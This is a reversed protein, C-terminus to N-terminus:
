PVYYEIVLRPRNAVTANGSYFRIFDALFDNDDDIQFRLRFQTIGARNIYPYYPDTMAKLRTSVYWGGAKPTNAIVGVGPQSAIAQFDTPQLAPNNSFAGKRADIIIKGHTTFPNTGVVSQRKIKLAVRTIVANDPLSSTNFHLIARYQRRNATDGLRFTAAGANTGGGQNSTESTELVWGDQAGAPTFQARTTALIVIAKNAGLSGAAGPGPLTLVADNNATDQIAGGNLTLSDSSVYDLDSSQDGAQVTYIFTLTDSGNGSTYNALRDIVGTELVLQPTGTVNVTESFTVTINIISGATYTGNAATSSVNMVTPATVDQGQYEYAGIDCHTGQPRTVGRQDTPVCISDDGTNIAPSGSLLAMTQTSGGNNQLSGLKPNVNLLDGLGPQFGSGGATNGILNHGYSTMAGHYDSNTNLAIITNRSYVTGHNDIGGGSGIAGTVTNGAITSNKLTLTSGSLTNSIGGGAGESASNGSVTSNILTLTGYNAIGGGRSPNYSSNGYVSNDSVTSRNLTLKGSTYNWIGAGTGGGNTPDGARNGNVACSNLTLTGANFVGGGNGIGGTITLGSIVVTANNVVAFVSGGAGDVTLRNAGPGNISLNRNLTPLAGSLNITGSVSFNITDGSQAHTLAYRLDGYFGSGQGGGTPNNDTLRNVVYTSSILAHANLPFMSLLFICILIASRKM